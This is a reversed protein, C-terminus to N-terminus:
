ISIFFSDLTRTRYVPPVIPLTRDRKSAQKLRIKDGECEMFFKCRSHSFQQFATTRIVVRSTHIKEGKRNIKLNEKFFQM